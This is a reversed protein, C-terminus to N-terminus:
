QNSISFFSLSVFSFCVQDNKPKRGGGNSRKTPAPSDTRDPANKSNKSKKSRKAPSSTFDAAPETAMQSSFTSSNSNESTECSGARFSSLAAAAAVVSSPVNPPLQYFNAPAPVLNPLGVLHNTPLSLPLTPPISVISSPISPISAIPAKLPLQAQSSPKEVLFHSFSKIMSQINVQSPIRFGAMHEHVFQAPPQHNILAQQSRDFFQEEISKL